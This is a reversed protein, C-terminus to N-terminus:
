EGVPLVSDLWDWLRTQDILGSHGWRENNQYLYSRPLEGYWQPDISFRLKEIQESAFIWSNASNLEFPALLAEAEESAEIGDTNILVIRFQPYKRHVRSLIALEKMCPPCDLSWLTVIFPLGAYAHEIQAYSDNELRQMGAPYATASILLSLALWFSIAFIKISRFM